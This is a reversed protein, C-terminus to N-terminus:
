SISGPPLLNVFIFMFKNNLWKAIQSELFAENKNFKLCFIFHMICYKYKISLKQYLKIIIKNKRFCLIHGCGESPRFLLTVQYDNQFQKMLKLLCTM